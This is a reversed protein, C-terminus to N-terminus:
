LRAFVRNWESVVEDLSLVDTRLKAKEGMKKRLENDQALERIRAAMAPVDGVPVLFGDIGPSILESPGSVCDTAICPLGAYMAECLVNPFGEYFSSLVFIESNKMEYFLSKSAGCFQVVEEVNLTSTFAELERRMEGQGFIKLIWGENAVGSEKFAKILTFFDKQKELRGASIVVKEKYSKKNGLQTNLAAYDLPNEVVYIKKQLYKPYFSKIKKTQVVIADAFRYLQCSLFFVLKSHEMLPNNRDCVVLKHKRFIKNVLLLLNCRSLFSVSISDNQNRWRSRIFLYDKIFEKLKGHQTNNEKHLIVKDTVSYFQPRKELSTISVNDGKNALYEAISVLVHEAGGSSLSSIYFDIQRNQM